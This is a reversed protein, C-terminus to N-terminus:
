LGEIVPYYLRRYVALLCPNITVAWMTHSTCSIHVMYIYGYIRVFVRATWEYELKLSARSAGVAYEGNGLGWSRQSWSFNWHLWWFMIQNDSKNKPIFSVFVDHFILIYNINLIAITKKNACRFRDQGKERAKPRVHQLDKRFVPLPVTRTLMLQVFHDLINPENWPMRWAPFVTQGYALITGNYGNLVDSVVPKGVEATLTNSIM